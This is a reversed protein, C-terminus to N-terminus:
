RGSRHYDMVHNVFERFFILKRSCLQCHIEKSDKGNDDDDDDDKWKRLEDVKMGSAETLRDLEVQLDKNEKEKEWEPIKLCIPEMARHSRRRQSFFGGVMRM